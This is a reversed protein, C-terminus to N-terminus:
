RGFTVRLNVDDKGAGKNIDDVTEKNAKLLNIGIDSADNAMRTLVAIGKLSEMSSEDLPDADDIEQVKGHAIGSLRHATAAGFEAAGALHGSIAKLRDALSHASFRESISLSNLAKDTQVILSAAAKVIKSRNGTRESIAAKSVGFEKSLASLTEGGVVRKAIEEWQKETLKSPRGAM